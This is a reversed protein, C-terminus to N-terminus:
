RPRAGRVPPRFPGLATFSYACFVPPVADEKKDPAGFLHGGGGDGLLHCRRRRVQRRRLSRQEAAGVTHSRGLRTPRTSRSCSAPDVLPVDIRGRESTLQTLTASRRSQWKSVLPRCRSWQFCRCASQSDTEAPLKESEARRKRDSSKADGPFEATRADNASINCLSGGAAEFACCTAAHCRYAYADRRYQQMARASHLICARPTTEEAEDALAAGLDRSLLRPM